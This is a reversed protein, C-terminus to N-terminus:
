EAVQFMLEEFGPFSVDAVEWGDIEIADTAACSATACTLATRHDGHSDVRGGHLRTPGEIRMGDPTEEINAGLRKLNQVTTRIRDSEKVRLEDAGTICTLGQASTALLALLPVEDICSTVMAHDIDIGQLDRYAIVLNGNPEYGEDGKEITVDAGMLAIVDLFGTRSPNLGVDEIRLKSGRALCAAAILYSASSIDGPVRLDFPELTPYRGQGQVSIERGHSAVEIGLWRLLRETHDRTPQK